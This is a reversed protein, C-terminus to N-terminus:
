RFRARAYRPHEDIRALQARSHEVLEDALDAPWAIAGGQVLEIIKLERLRLGRGEQHAAVVDDYAENFDLKKGPTVTLTGLVVPGDPPPVDPMRPDVLDEPAFVKADRPKRAPDFLWEDIKPIRFEREPEKFERWLREDVAFRKAIAAPAEGARLAQAIAEAKRRTAEEAQAPSVDGVAEDIVRLTYFAFTVEPPVDFLKPQERYLRRVEAPSVTLDVQPRAGRFLGRSLKTFYAQQLEADHVSQRFEEESINQQALYEEFTAPRGTNESLVEVAKAKGQV